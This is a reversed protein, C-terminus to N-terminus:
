LKIVFLDMLLTKQEMKLNKLITGCMRVGSHCRHYIDFFAVNVAYIIYIIIYEFDLVGGSKCGDYLMEVVKIM